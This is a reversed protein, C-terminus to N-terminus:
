KFLKMGHISQVKLQRIIQDTSLPLKRGNQRRYLFYNRLKQSDFGLAIEPFQTMKPTHASEM